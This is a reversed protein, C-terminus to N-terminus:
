KEDEGHPMPGIAEGGYIGMSGLVTLILPPSLKQAGLQVKAQEVERVWVLLRGLDEVMKRTIPVGHHRLIRRLADEEDRSCRQVMLDKAGRPQLPTATTM